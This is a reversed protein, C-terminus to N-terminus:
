FWTIVEENEEERKILHLALVTYTDEPKVYFAAQKM